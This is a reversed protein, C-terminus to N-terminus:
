KYIEISNDIKKQGNISYSNLETYYSENFLSKGCKARKTTFDTLTFIQGTQVINLKYDLNINILQTHAYFKLTDYQNGHIIYSNVKSTFNSNLSYSTIIISDLDHLNFNYFNITQIMDASAETCDEKPFTCSTFAIIVWLFIIKKM